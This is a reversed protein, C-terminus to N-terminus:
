VANCQIVNCPITNYRITVYKCYLFVFFHNHKLDFCNAKDTGRNMPSDPVTNEEEPSIM